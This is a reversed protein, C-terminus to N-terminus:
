ESGTTHGGGAASIRAGIVGVLVLESLRVVTLTGTDVAALVATTVLVTELMLIM